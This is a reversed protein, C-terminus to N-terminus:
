NLFEHVRDNRGFPSIKRVNECENPIVTDKSSTFMSDGSFTVPM